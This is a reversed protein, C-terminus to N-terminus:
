AFDSQSKITFSMGKIMNLLQIKEKENGFTTDVFLFLSSICGSFIGVAVKFLALSAGLFM